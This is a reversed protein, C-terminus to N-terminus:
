RKQIHGYSFVIAAGILPVSFVITGTPSLGLTTGLFGAVLATGLVAIFIVASRTRRM